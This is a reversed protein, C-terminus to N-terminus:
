NDEFFARAAKANAPRVDAARRCVEWLANFVPREDSGPKLARLIRCSSQYAAFAALHDDAAWGDVDAWSVPELQSDALKLPEDGPEACALSSLWLAAAAISGLFVCLRVTM